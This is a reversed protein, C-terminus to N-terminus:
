RHPSAGKGWKRVQATAPQSGMKVRCLGNLDHEIRPLKELILIAQHQESIDDELVVNVEDTATVVSQHDLPRLRRPSVHRWPVHSASDSPVSFHSSRSRARCPTTRSPHGLRCCSPPHICDWHSILHCSPQPESAPVADHALSAASPTITTFQKLPSTLHVNGGSTRGKHWCPCRHRIRRGEASNPVSIDESRRVDNSGNARTVREKLPGGTHHCIEGANLLILGLVSM